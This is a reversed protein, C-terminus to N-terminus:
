LDKELIFDNATKRGVGPLTIMDEITKPIQANFKDLLAQSALIINKAKNKLM